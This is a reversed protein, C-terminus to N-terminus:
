AYVPQPPRIGLQNMVEDLSVQRLQALELLAQLRAADALEAEDILRLLEQQEDTSITEAQLKAQLDTYRRQVIDPLGRNIKQLLSTEQKSLRPAKRQALVLSVQSLLHEVTPTDLQAVGDLLQEFNIQVESKVHITTM